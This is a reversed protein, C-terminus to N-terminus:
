ATARLEEFWRRLDDGSRRARVREVHATLAALWVPELLLLAGTGLLVAYAPNRATFVGDWGAVDLAAIGGALWVAARAFLHLNIAAVPLAVAFLLLLRILRGIPGVGRWTERLSDLPGPGGEPAAAAALGAAAILFLPAVFTMLLGWFLAEIALASALHGAMERAPVRLLARPAPRDSQFAHRCARVFIQRGWLSGLWAVLGLWGTRLLWEGHHVANSGLEILRICLFAFLLRAPLATFWLLGVWAPLRGVADVAEDVLRLAGEEKM